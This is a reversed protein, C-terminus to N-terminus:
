RVLQKKGNIINIMGRQPASLRRGNLDFIGDAREQTQADENYLTRIGTVPDEEGIVKIYICSALAPSTEEGIFSPKQEIQCYWRLPQINGTYPVITEYNNLSYINDGAPTIETYTGIFDFKTTATETHINNFNDNAKMTVNSLELQPLYGVTARVLLPTGALLRGNTIKIIEMVTRDITGDQNDDYNHIGEIYAPTLGNAALYSANVDFPTFWASWVNEPYYRNYVLNDVTSEHTIIYPDGDNITFSDFHSPSDGCRTCVGYQYNHGLKAEVVIEKTGKYEVNDLTVTATYISIGDTTCTPETTIDNTIADGTAVMELKHNANKTCVFKLTAKTVGEWVWNDNGEADKETVYNHGDISHARWNSPLFILENGVLADPMNVVGTTGVATGELWNTFCANGADTRQDMTTINAIDVSTLNECGFFMSDYARRSLSTAPLPSVTMLNRCNRFMGMYAGDPITTAPLEPAVSIGTGEFMNMYCFQSLSNFPLEPAKTLKECGKFLGTFVHQPLGALTTKQCTVDLLSVINGGAQVTGTGTMTFSWCNNQNNSIHTLVDDTGHAFYYTKGAPITVIDTTASLTQTTWQDKDASYRIVYDNPSGTKLMGITMDGGTATLSLYNDSIPVINEFKKWIEATTYKGNLIPVELRTTKYVDAKVIDGGCTPPVEAEVRLKDLPSFSFAYKDISKVGSGITVERLNYCMDFASYGISTVNDPIKIKKLGNCDSFAYDAISTVSNPINTIACGCILTNTSTEIIANCDGRSDYKPNKSDVTISGANSCGAFADTGISTVSSSIWIESLSSCNEFALSGITTLKNSWRFKSLSTCYSFAFNGIYTLNNNYSMNVEVLSSCNEFAGDGIYTISNPLSVSTVDCCFAFAGQGISTVRFDVGSYSVTELIVIDGFYDENHVVEVTRDKDSTINYSIGNVDFASANLTIAINALLFLLKRM